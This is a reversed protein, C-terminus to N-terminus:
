SELRLCSAGESAVVEFAFGTEAERNLREAVADVTDDSCLAIICGGLGAGTLRAGAAGAQVAADVLRDLRPTSVALEDHLSTHSALLIQGADEMSPKSLAAILEGVRGAETVVHRFSRAEPGDLVSSALELAGEVGLIEILEEYGPQAPMPEHRHIRDLAAQTLRVLDNYRAQVAGSKEAREGSFAVIWRWGSPMPVHRIGLPGFSLHLAHGARGLLVSAQDMGGGATGVYREGEALLAALLFREREELDSSLGAGQWTALAVAVVLASSSSLGAAPPLDGAVFADFGVRPASGRAQVIFELVSQVAARAYNSWDGAPGPPIPSATEFTEPTLGPHTTAIRVSADDTAAYALWVARDIAMPLVPLGCYDIHEGVLNVRGPARIVHTPPRGYQSEFGELVEPPVAAPVDVAEHRTM